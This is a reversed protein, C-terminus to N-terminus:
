VGGPHAEDIPVVPRHLPVDLDKHHKPKAYDPQDSARCGDVDEAMHAPAVAQIVNQAAQEHHDEANRGPEEERQDLVDDARPSPPDVTGIRRLEALVVAGSWHLTGARGVVILGFISVPTWDRERLARRASWALWGLNLLSLPGLMWLVLLTFVLPAGGSAGPVDRLEPEIWTRSSWWLFAIVAVANMALWIGDRLPQFKRFGTKFASGGPRIYAREIEEM